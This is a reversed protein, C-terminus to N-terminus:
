GILTLNAEGANELGITYAAAEAITGHPTWADVVEYTGIGNSKGEECELIM